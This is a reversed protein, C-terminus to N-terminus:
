SEQQASDAAAAKGGRQVILAVVKIILAVCLAILMAIGYAILAFIISKVVM